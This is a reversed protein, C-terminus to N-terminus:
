CRGTPQVFVRMLSSRVTLHFLSWGQIADYLVKLLELVTDCNSLPQGFSAFRQVVRDRITLSNVTEPLPCGNPWIGVQLPPDSIAEVFVCLSPIFGQRQIKKFFAEEKSRRRKDRWVRKVLVTPSLARLVFTQRGPGPFSKVVRLFWGQGNIDWHGGTEPEDRDQHLPNLHDSGEPPTTRSFLPDFLPFKPHYLSYVFDYLVKLSDHDVSSDSNMWPFRPESRVVLSANQMVVFFGKSDILLYLQAAVEPNAVNVNRGYSFGQWPIHGNTFKAEVFTRLRAWFPKVLAEASLNDDVGIIDPMTGLMEAPGQPQDPLAM